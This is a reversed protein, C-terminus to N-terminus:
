SNFLRRQFRPAVPPPDSPPSPPPLPHSKPSAAIEQLKNKVGDRRLSGFGSDALESLLQEFDGGTWTPNGYRGFTRVGDSKVQPHDQSGEYPTHLRLFSELYPRAAEDWDAWGVFEYDWDLEWLRLTKDDSGSLVWRSDRSLFVSTVSEAHGEFTHVAKATSVDWLRLTKDDSGSLAWRGDASLFVARIWNTHGRFTRLWLGSSVDWFGLTLEDAGSLAWRGDDSLVVSRVWGKHGKLARFHGTALETVGLTRDDSASLARQCVSDLVVSNIAGRHGTIARVCRGTRVEWARLTKDQGGSLAWVGDRSLFVSSVGGTHGLFTQVCDGTSVEWLRLTKDTSGSLALQGDRSLAVSTVADTHGKFIHVCQATSVDWLHLQCDDSGSLAQRADLSLVASNVPGSHGDFRRLFRGSVLAKRRCYRGAECLVNLAENDFARHPLRRAEGVFALASAPDGANLAKRASDMLQAFETELRLYEESDVRCLVLPASTVASRRRRVRNAACVIEKRISPASPNTLECVRVTNDQSGSFAWRADRSFTVCRVAETHGQLMRVCRGTSVEWLRLSGDLSGTLAWEGNESLAVSCVRGCQGDFTRVCAGTTVDWLRVTRDDSGSLAFRCDESLFLSMVIDTHGAFSRVCRGTSVEWLCMTKDYSGSLAWRTDASLAVSSVVETHGALAQLCRGTSVDWLRVKKDYGGSLARSGDRSLFVSTVSDGTGEFNQLQRGTLVDWLRVKGDYSGSLAQQGDMSLFVSVVCRSHGEFARVCEGTSVNWLSVTGDYSGLLAHSADGSLSMSMTRPTSKKFSRVRSAEAGDRALNMAEQVEIGGGLREAQRFSRVAADWYGGEVYVLGELYSTRWEGPRVAGAERVQSLLAAFATDTMGGSRWHTLGQNYISELHHRDAELAEKWEQEAESQRGLDLLSVARNNHVDASLRAPKPEPRAYSTSMLREYIHRLTAAIEGFDGPRAQPDQQFCHRLLDVFPEPMAPLREDLRGRELYDELVEDAVSGSSWTVKGIFMELVSVAWSWLDTRHTLKTGDESPIDGELQRKITAQEPSCYELTMMGACSAFLTHQRTQSSADRATARIRALGFDTVKATGDHTLLVNAPKVDQHILGKEHAYHLGWASQIAIDVIRGLAENPGGEYLQGSDIWHKLSGGEVCQAFVRPIGGLTRVYYCSVIHPHLGLKIWADCEAAFDAKQTETHFYDPLPCKVALDLNWRPYHVRYVRGMGGEGLLGKVEYLDLIVDGEAWVEPVGDPGFKRTTHPAAPESALSAGAASPEADMPTLVFTADCASCTTEMGVDAEAFAYKKACKPCVATFKTM